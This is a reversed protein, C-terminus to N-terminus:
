LKKHRLYAVCLQCYVFISHGPFMLSHTSNLTGSSVCCTHKFLLRQLCNIASTGVVLFSYFLVSCVGSVCFLFLFAQSALLVVM